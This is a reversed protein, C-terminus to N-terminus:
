IYASCKTCYKLTWCICNVIQTLLWDTVTIQTQIQIVAKSYLFVYAGSIVSLPDVTGEGWTSVEDEWATLISMGIHPISLGTHVEWWRIVTTKHAPWYIKEFLRLASISSCVRDVCAENLNKFTLKRLHTFISWKITNMTTTPKWELWASCMQGWWKRFCCYVQNISAQFLFRCDKLDKPFYSQAKQAKTFGQTHERILRLHDLPQKSLATNGSQEGHLPKGDEHASPPKRHRQAFDALETIHTHGFLHTSTDEPLSPFFLSKIIYINKNEPIIM